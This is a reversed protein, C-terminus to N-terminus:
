REKPPCLLRQRRNMRRASRQSGRKNKRKRRKQTRLTHEARGMMSAGKEDVQIVLIEGDDDPVPLDRLFAAAVPGITDVIGLVSRKSPLYEGFKAAIEGVDDFVVKAALWAARLQLDLTMRGDALGIARDEPAIVHPGVGGTRDYVARLGYVEGFRTRVVDFTANRYAYWGRGVRLSAPVERPTHVALWLMVLAAGLAMVRTFVGGEVEHLGLQQAPGEVWVM